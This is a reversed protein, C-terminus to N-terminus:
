STQLSLKWSQFYFTTKEHLLSCGTQLTLSFWLLRMIDVPHGNFSFRPWSQKSELVRSIWDLRSEWRYWHEYFLVGGASAMTLNLLSLWLVWYESVWLALWKLNGCVAILRLFSIPFFDIIFGISARSAVFSWWFLFIM